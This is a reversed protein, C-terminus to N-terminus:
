MCYAGVKDSKGYRKLLTYETAVKPQYWTVTSYYMSTMLYQTAIAPSHVIGYKADTLALNKPIINASPAPPSWNAPLLHVLYSAGFDIPGANALPNRQIVHCL